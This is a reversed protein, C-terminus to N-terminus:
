IKNWYVFDRQPQLNRATPALKAVELIKEIKEKEVEKTCFSRCSYREKALELFDM